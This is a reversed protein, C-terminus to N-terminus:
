RQVIRLTLNLCWYGVPLLVPLSWSLTDAHIASDRFSFNMMFEQYWMMEMKIQRFVFLVILYLISM